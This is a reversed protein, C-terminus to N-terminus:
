LLITNLFCDYLRSFYMALLIINYKVVKATLNSARQSIMRATGFEFGLALLTTIITSLTPTKRTTEWKGMKMEVNEVKRDKEKM